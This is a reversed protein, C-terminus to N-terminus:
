RQNHFSSRVSNSITQYGTQLSRLNHMTERMAKIMTQCLLDEAIELECDITAAAKRVDAAGSGRHKMIARSWAMERAMTARYAREEWYRQYHVGRELKAAVEVLQAEVDAPTYPASSDIVVVQSDLPDRPVVGSDPREPVGPVSEWADPASEEPPAWPPEGEALSREGAAFGAAYAMGGGETYGQLAAAALEPDDLMDEPMSMADNVPADDNPMVALEALLEQHDRELEREALEPTTRWETGSRDTYIVEGPHDPAPRVTTGGAPLFPESTHEPVGIPGGQDPLPADVVLPPRVGQNRACESAFEHRADTPGVTRLIYRAQLRAHEASCAGYHDREAPQGCITGQATWPCGRASQAADVAAPVRQVPEPEVDDPPEEVPFGLIKGCGDCVIGREPDEIPDRRELCAAHEPWHARVLVSLDAM